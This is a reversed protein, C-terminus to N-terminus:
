YNIFNIRYETTRMYDAFEVSNNFVYINNIEIDSKDELSTTIFRLKAKNIDKLWLENTNRRFGLTNLLILNKGPLIEPYYRSLGTSDSDYFYITNSITYESLNNIEIAIFKSPDNDLPTQFDLWIEGYTLESLDKDLTVINEVLISDLEDVNILDTDIKQLDSNEVIELTNECLLIKWLDEVTAYIKYSVAEKPIENAVLSNEYKRGEHRDTQLINGNVDLFEVDNNYIDIYYPHPASARLFYYKNTKDDIEEAYIKLTEKFTGQRSKFEDLYFEDNTLLYLANLARLEIIGKVNQNITLPNLMYNTWESNPYYFDASMEKYADTYSLVLPSLQEEYEPYKALINIAVSGFLSGNYVFMSNEITSGEYAYELPWINGSELTINFGKESVDKQIYVVLDDVFDKYKQEGTQEYVLQSTIAVLPADMSSVWGYEYDAYGPRPLYGERYFTGMINELIELAREFNIESYIFTFSSIAQTLYSAYDVGNEQFDSPKEDIPSITLFNSFIDKDLSKLTLKEEVINDITNDVKNCGVLLILMIM